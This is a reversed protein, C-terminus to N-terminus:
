ELAIFSFDEILGHGISKGIPPPPLIDKKLDNKGFAQKFIHRSAKARVGTQATLVSREGFQSATNFGSM